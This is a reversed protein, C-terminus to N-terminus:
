LLQKIWDQIVLEFHCSSWLVEMEALMKKRYDTKIHRTHSLGYTRLTQAGPLVWAKALPYYSVRLKPDITTFLVVSPVSFADAVHYSLTDVTVLGDVQGVLSIFRAVGVIDETLDIHNPAGLNGYGSVTIVTGQWETAIQEVFQRELSAPVSRLDNSARLTVLLLPRRLQRKFLVSSVSRWESSGITCQIRKGQAPINDAAFGLSSLYFDILPLTDFGVRQQLGSFDFFADYECFDRATIPLRRCGCVWSTGAAIEDTKNSASLVEFQPELGLAKCLGLVHTFTSAGVLSDGYASGFFNILAVKLHRGRCRSLILDALQERLLHSKAQKSGTKECGLFPMGLEIPADQRTLFQCVDLQDTLRVGPVERLAQKLRQRLRPTVIYLADLDQNGWADSSMLTTVRGEIRLAVSQSVIVLQM